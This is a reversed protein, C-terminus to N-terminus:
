GNVNNPTAVIPIRRNIPKEEDYKEKMNRVKITSM